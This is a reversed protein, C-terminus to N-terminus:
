AKEWGKKAELKPGARESLDLNWRADLQAKWGELDGRVSWRRRREKEGEEISRRIEVAQLQAPVGEIVEGRREVAYEGIHCGSQMMEGKAERDRDLLHVLLAARAKGEAEEKRGAGGEFGKMKLM